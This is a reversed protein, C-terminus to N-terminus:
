NYALYFELFSNRVDSANSCNRLKMIFKKDKILGYMESIIDKSDEKLALLFVCDVAIKDWWSIADKFIAIGIAPKIVNEPRGHPIAINNIVAPGLVERKYVDLLFQEKVYGKDILNKVMEDLVENKTHWDPDVLITEECILETLKNKHNNEITTKQVIGVKAIEKLKEVGTGRIIEELSIFPISSDKPDVSGVIASVTYKEKIKEIRESIDENDMIGLPIIQVKEQIGPLMKEILNKIRIATGEGTICLTLIVRKDKTLESPIFRGLGVKDKDISEVIEDLTTDPLIARRLAELVMVTDVRGVTKTPIGTQKTIIEGFTMLSGMDVLLLVGKGEDVKSVIEVTRQLASEPKEDLSMEIGVAHNVGLLRNAVEAMGQAVRGHSLVVVGVRGKKVDSPRTITRLYMAIFGIEDQPIKYGTLVEVYKVMEEAVSYELKYERLVKELQPNM